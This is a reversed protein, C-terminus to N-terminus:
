TWSSEKLAEQLDERGEDCITAKTSWTDEDEDADALALPLKFDGQWNM